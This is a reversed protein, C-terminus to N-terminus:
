LVFFVLVGCLRESFWLILLVFTLELTFRVFYGVSNLVVGFLMAIVPVLLWSCDCGASALM